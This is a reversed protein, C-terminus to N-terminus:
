EDIDGSPENSTPCELFDCILEVPSKYKKQIGNAYTEEYMRRTM